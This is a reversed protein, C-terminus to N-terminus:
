LRGEKSQQTYFCGMVLKQAAEDLGRMFIDVGLDECVRVWSRVTPHYQARTSDHVAIGMSAAVSEFMGPCFREVRGVLM